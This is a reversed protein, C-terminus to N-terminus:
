AQILKLSDEVKEKLVERGYGTKYFKEQKLADKKSIFAEYYLLTFPKNRKSFYGGIGTNHEKIRQKLDSTSGIYIVKTKISYLAYVYHM